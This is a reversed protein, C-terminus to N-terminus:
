VCLIGNPSDCVKPVAAQFNINTAPEPGTVVFRALINVLGPRQPSVQPTLTIKLANKEYATYSQLRSAAAPQPQVQPPSQAPAPPVPSSFLPSATAINSIPSAAAAAAAVPAPSSDFLGLIDNISSKQPNLPTPSAATTSTSPSSDGFIEALLDRNSQASAAPANAM